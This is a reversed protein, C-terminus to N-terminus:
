IAPEPWLSSINYPFFSDWTTSLTRKDIKKALMGHYWSLVMAANQQWPLHLRQVVIPKQHQHCQSGLYEDLQTDQEAAGCLACPVAKKTGASSGSIQLPQPLRRNWQSIWFRCATIKTSHQRGATYTKVSELAWKFSCLFRYTFYSYKHKFSSSLWPYTESTNTWVLVSKRSNPPFTPYM